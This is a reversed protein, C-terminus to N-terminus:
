RSRPNPRRPATGVPGAADTRAVHPRRPRGAGTAGSRAPGAAHLQGDATTASANCRELADGGALIRTTQCVVRFTGLRHGAADRLVGSVIQRPGAQGTAPGASASHTYDADLLLRPPQAAGAAAAVSLAAVAVASLSILRIRTM